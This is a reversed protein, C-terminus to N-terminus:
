RSGVVGGIRRELADFLRQLRETIPGRRGNGIVRGDISTIPMVSQTTSTLFAEDLSYLENETVPREDVRVKEALAISIVHDRVTGSLIGRDCPHTILKGERVAFFTSSAGETVLGNDLFLAEEARARQAKKKALLNPLLNVSKVDCYRSRSDDTTIVQIGRKKKARDPFRFRRSYALVTPQLGEPFFHVREDEGRTVQVYVIGDDFTTRALLEGVVLDFGSLEAWPNQIELVQLGAALRGYHDATFLPRKGLFKLVEYVSDGFQFGRDEVGVVREETTTFRGNVYLVDAAM